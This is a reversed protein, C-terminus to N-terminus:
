QSIVEKMFGAVVAELDPHLRHPSSGPIWIDHGECYRDYDYAYVCIRGGNKVVAQEFATCASFLVVQDKRWHTCLIPPADATHYEAPNIERLAKEDPEKGLFPSYWEPWLSPQVAAFVDDIGSISVIGCITGRPLMLGTMLAYHGGASAGVTFIKKKDIPYDSHILWEAAAKCDNCGAPWRYEPTLRYEINFVAFGNEALFDAVGRMAHRDMSNWGGGHILLAAPFGGEPVQNGPLFLDGELGPKYEINQIIKM